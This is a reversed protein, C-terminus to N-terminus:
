SAPCRLPARRAGPAQPPRPAPAPASPPAPMRTPPCPLGQRSQTPAGCGLGALRAALPSRPATPCGHPLDPLAHATATTSPCCGERGRGRRLCGWGGGAGGGAQRAGTRGRAARRSRASATPRAHLARAAAHPGLGAVRARWALGVEQRLSGQGCRCGGQGGQLGALTVGDGLLALAPRVRLVLPELLADPQPAALPAPNFARPPIPACARTRAPVGHARLAAVVRTVGARGGRLARPCWSRRASGTAHAFTSQWAPARGPRPCPPPSSAWGAAWTPQARGAVQVRCRACLVSRALLPM